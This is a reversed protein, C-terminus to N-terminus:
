LYDGHHGPEDGQMAIGSEYHHHDGKQPKKRWLIWVALVLIAGIALAAAAGPM